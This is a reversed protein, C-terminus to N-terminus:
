GREPRPGGDNRFTQGASGDARHWEVVLEDRTGFRVLHRGIVDELREVADGDAALTMELAGNEAVLEVRNGDTGFEIWGLEHDDDWSGVARRSLHNVLQKGYRSPRDTAVTATTTSREQNM